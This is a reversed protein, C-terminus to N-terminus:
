YSKYLRDRHKHTHTHTYTSGILAVPPNTQSSIPDGASARIASQGFQFKFHIHVCVFVLADAFSGPFEFRICLYCFFVGRAAVFGFLNIECVRQVHM